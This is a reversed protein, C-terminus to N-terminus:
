LGGYRNKFEVLVPSSPGTSTGSLYFQNPGPELLVWISQPSVAWLLSTTVGSRTLTISKQGKITCLNIVDGVLLPASVLMTQVDGTPTTHYITFESMTKAAIFSLSSLGTKSSGNVQIVQPTTDITTFLDHIETTETDIFDPDFCIISIDMQPEKAFLTPECSEVTGKTQVILGDTMYFALNVKTATMFYDYLRSRLVRVTENISFNPAYGLKLTINRTERSSSQEQQGDMDAFDSTVITAKVPGLGDIDEVIYGNSIDELSLVLLNGRSNTVEVKDISM